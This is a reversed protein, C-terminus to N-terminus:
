ESISFLVYQVQIWIFFYFFTSRKVNKSHEIINFFNNQISSAPDCNLKLASSSTSHGIRSSVIVSLFFIISSAFEAFTADLGGPATTCRRAAPVSRKPRRRALPALITRIEMAVLAPMRQKAWRSIMWIRSWNVSCTRATPKASALPWLASTKRTRALSFRTRIRPLRISAAMKRSM